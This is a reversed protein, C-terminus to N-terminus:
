RTVTVSQATPTASCARALGNIHYPEARGVTVSILIEQCLIRPAAPARSRARARAPGQALIPSRSFQAHALRRGLGVYVRAGYLAARGKSSASCALTAPAAYAFLPGARCRGDPPISEDPRTHASGGPPSPSRSDFLSPSYLNYTKKCLQRSPTCRSRCLAAALAPTLRRGWGRPHRARLAGGPPSKETEFKRST